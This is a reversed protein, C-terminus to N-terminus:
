AYIGRELATQFIPQKGRLTNIEDEALIHIDVFVEYKLDIEYCYESIKNKLKWDPMERLIILFDYDSNAHAKGYARSGFLIVDKLNDGLKEKLLDKLAYLVKYKKTM